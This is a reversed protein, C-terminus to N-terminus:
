KKMENEVATVIGKVQQGEEGKLKDKVRKNYVDVLEKAAEPNAKADLSNSILGEIGVAIGTKDNKEVADALQKMAEVKAETQRKTNDQPSESPGGCGVFTCFSLVVMGAALRIPQRM